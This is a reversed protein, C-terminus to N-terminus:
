GQAGPWGPLRQDVPAVEVAGQFLCFTGQLVVAGGAVGVGLGRRVARQCLEPHSPVLQLQGDTLWKSNELPGHPIELTELPNELTEM